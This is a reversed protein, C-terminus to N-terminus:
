KKSLKELQAQMASLQDRLAEIEADNSETVPHEEVAQPEPEPAPLAVTTGAEEEEEGDKGQFIKFVNEFRQYNQKMLEELNRPRDQKDPAFQSLAQEIAAQFEQQNKSFNELSMELYRPVASQMKDDYFSILQRLFRIPLLNHGKAEEEMIIQTLVSRTLDDGSKADYVLFERGEKVMASLAELTVYSSSDTNYLRRNAYKKIIIPEQAM